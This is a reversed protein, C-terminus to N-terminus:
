KKKKWLIKRKGAKHEPTYGIGLCGNCLGREDKDIDERDYNKRAKGSLFIGCKRCPIPTRGM